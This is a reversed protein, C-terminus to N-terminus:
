KEKLSCIFDSWFNMLPALQKVYNSKNTYARVVKSIEQHDLAREKVEFGFKNDEDLTEILSRFTGRFGHLRQKKGKREDNYGMRKLAGNPSETNIPNRNDTGLFVWKQHGSFVKQDFLINIVEETLPMIFDPLNKDKVKMLERPIILLKNEFDIFNWELNCLNEARLPLHLVMKLSNRVSHMGKYNYIDNVLEKLVKIDVIKSFHKVELKKLYYKREDKSNNFINKSLYGKFIAYNFIGRLFIFIRSAVNPAQIEKTKIIKLVDEKTVDKIHKNKLFPNIDNEFIRVKTLHTNEKVRKGEEELWEKVVNLFIGNEENVISNQINNFFEIPNIGQNIINLYEARKNRAEKLSVIPYTKFTTLRRKGQFTFRFEWIKKDDKTVKLRLGAGDNLFYDKNQSKASKVQIDKLLDIAM